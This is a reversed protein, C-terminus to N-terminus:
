GLGLLKGAITADASGIGGTQRAVRWCGGLEVNAFIGAVNIVAFHRQAPCAIEPGPGTLANALEASDAGSLTFARTFTGVGIDGGNEDGVAQYECVHASAVPVSFVPGGAGPKVGAQSYLANENKWNTSCGAAQAQPTELQRVKKVSVERWGMSHWAALFAALPKGCVGVPPTPALTKGTADVLILPPVVILDLTCFGNGAPQNPLEFAKQLAATGTTAVKRVTVEWRGQGPLQRSDDGCTVVTVARFTALEAAAAHTPTAPCRVDKTLTVPNTSTPTPSPSILLSAHHNARGSACSALGLIVAAASIVLRRIGRSAM